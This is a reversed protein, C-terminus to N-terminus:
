KDYNLDVINSNVVKRYYDYIHLMYSYDFNYQNTHGYLHRLIRNTFFMKSDYEICDYTKVSKADYVFLRSESSNKPKFPQIFIEGDLYKYDMQNKVWPLRFKLSSAYPIITRVWEEQLKQDAIIITNQDKVNSDEDEECDGINGIIPNRIDSIFIINKDKYGACDQQTFFRLFLKVNPLKELEKDFVIDYLHYEFQPFLSILKLLHHGPGAGVYVVITGPKVLKKDIVKTLFYLESLYLKKQGKHVNIIYKEFKDEGFVKKIHKYPLSVPINKYDIYFELSNKFDISQIYKNEEANFYKNYFVDLYKKEIVYKEDGGTVQHIEKINEQRAINKFSKKKKNNNKKILEHKKPIPNKEDVIDDISDLYDWINSM